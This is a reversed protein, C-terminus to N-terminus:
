GKGRDSARRHQALVMQHWSVSGVEAFEPPAIKEGGCGLGAECDTYAYIEGLSAGLDVTDLVNCTM